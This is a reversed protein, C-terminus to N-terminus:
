IGRCTEPAIRGDDHVIQMSRRIIPPNRELCTSSNLKIYNIHIFLFNTYWTPLLLFTESFSKWYHKWAPVSSAHTLWFSFIRIIFSTLLHQNCNAPKIYCRWNNLLWVEHLDKWKHQTKDNKSTNQVQLCM